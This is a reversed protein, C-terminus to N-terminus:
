TSPTASVPPADTYSVISVEAPVARLQNLLNTIRDTVQGTVYPEHCSQCVEAPVEKILIVTDSFTFPITAAGLKLRGGCLPCRNNRGREGTM